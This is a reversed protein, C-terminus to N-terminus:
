GQIRRFRKDLETHSIQVMLPRGHPCTPTTKEEIIDRILSLVSEMPLREGGKVAHKCATQILRERQLERASARGAQRLQELADYLGRQDLPSGDIMPVATMTVADEGAPIEFSFGLEELQARHELLLAMEAAPLTLREPVLLSQSVPRLERSMLKEYLRREHAAHQDIFFLADGQEM